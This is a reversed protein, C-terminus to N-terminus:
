GIISNLLAPLVVRPVFVKKGSAARITEGLELTFGMCDSLILDVDENAFMRATNELHELSGYPSAARAVPNFRAYYGLTLPIQEPEPVIVGLKMVRLAGLLAFIVREPTLVTMKTEILEFHGTCLILAASAGEAEARTLCANARRIAQKESVRVNTGDALNTVIFNEGERPWAERKVDELTMGDLIGYERVVANPVAVAIDNTKLSKQGMTVIAAIKKDPM